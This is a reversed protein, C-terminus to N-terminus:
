ALPASTAVKTITPKFGTNRFNLFLILHMRAACVQTQCPLIFHQFTSYFLFTLVRPNVYSYCEHLDIQPVCDYGSQVTYM